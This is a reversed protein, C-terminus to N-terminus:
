FMLGNFSFPRALACIQMVAYLAVVFWLVKRVRPGARDRALAISTGVIAAGVVLSLPSSLAAWVLIFLFTGGAQLAKLVWGDELCARDYGYRCAQMRKIQARFMSGTTGLWRAEQFCAEPHRQACRESLWARSRDDGVASAAGLVFCGSDAQGVCAKSGFEFLADMSGRKQEFSLLRPCRGKDAMCEAQFRTRAKETEKPTGPLAAIYKDCEAERGSKTCAADLTALLQDKSAHKADFALLSDCRGAIKCSKAFTVRAATLNGVAEYSQGLM